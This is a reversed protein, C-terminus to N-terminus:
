FLQLMYTHTHTVTNAHINKVHVCCCFYIVVFRVICQMEACIIYFSIVQLCSLGDKVLYAGMVECKLSMNTFLLYRLTGLLYTHSGECVGTALSRSM